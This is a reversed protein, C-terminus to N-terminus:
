RKPEDSGKLKGAVIEDFRDMDACFEPHTKFYSAYTMRDLDKHIEFHRWIHHNLGDALNKDEAELAAIKAELEAFKKKIEEDM